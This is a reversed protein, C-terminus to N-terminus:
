EVNNLDAWVASDGDLIVKQIVLQIVPPSEGAGRPKGTPCWGDNDVM